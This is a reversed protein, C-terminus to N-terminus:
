ETFNPEGKGFKPNAIEHLCHGAALVRLSNRDKIDVLPSAAGAQMAASVTGDPYFNLALVNSKTKDPAQDIRVDYECWASGPQSAKSNYANYGHAGDYAAKDFISEWVIHMTKPLKWRYDWAVSATPAPLAWAQANDPTAQNGSALSAAAIDNSDNDSLYVDYINSRTYNFSAVTLVESNPDGFKDVAAGHFSGSGDGQKCATLSAMLLACFFAIPRPQRAVSTRTELFNM